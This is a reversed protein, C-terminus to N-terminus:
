DFSAYTPCELLNSGRSFNDTNYIPHVSGVHPFAPSIMVACKNKARRILIQFQIQITKNFHYKGKGSFVNM